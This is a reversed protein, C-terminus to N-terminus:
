PQRSLRLSLCPFYGAAGFVHTQMDLQGGKFGNVLRASLPFELLSICDRFNCNISVTKRQTLM